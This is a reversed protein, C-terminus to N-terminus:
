HESAWPRVVQSPQAPIQGGHDPQLATSKVVPHSSEARLTYRPGKLVPSGSLLDSGEVHLPENKWGDSHAEGTVAPTSYNGSGHQEHGGGTISFAALTYIYLQKGSVSNTGSPKHFRNKM